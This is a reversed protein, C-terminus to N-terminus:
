PRRSSAPTASGPRHGNRAIEDLAPAAAQEEVAAGAHEGTQPAVLRQGRDVRDDDRVEVEVVAAVEDRPEPPVHQTRRGARVAGLEVDRGAPRARM